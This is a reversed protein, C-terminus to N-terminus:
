YGILTKANSINDVYGNGKGAAQIWAPGVSAPSLRGTALDAVAAASPPLVGQAISTPASNVEQGSAAQMNMGLNAANGATGIGANAVLFTGFLVQGSSIAKVGVGFAAVGGFTGLVAISANSVRIANNYAKVSKLADEGEGTAINRDANLLNRYSRQARTDGNAALQRLKQYPGCGTPDSQNIPDNNVYNFMALDGGAFNIPDRQLWRGLQPSYDRAGFRILDTDPDYLGGAFGFPQFGPSTDSLVRGFEDYDLAQAVSGNAVNVVLRVSGREDSLIRYTNAGEIMFSPTTGDAGYVFRATLVANSDVEAVPVIGDWLWGRQLVGRVTKGVRRGVPDIVYHVESAAPTTVSLLVGRVDYSYTTTQGGNSASILNGNPSWGFTLGNLRTIRDQADYTATESNRSLRNGNVDYTYVAALSGNRSVQQLRGALDYVYGFVTTVGAITEVKNTIRGILDYSLRISWVPTGNASVVYNTLLGRDDFMRQDSVNGVTAGTIFGTAPDRPISLGGAQILLRDADYTYAVTSGNVSESAPLLDSNFKVSVQGTISGSWAVSTLLPGSGVYGLQLTDGTTSSINTLMLSGDGWNQGYQFALTPGTGLVMQEVRGALGHQLTVIQGDPLNVQTLNREFDYQYSVSEDAGVLPPTYKTLLNVPNYEFTHAPRGPPTVSTLNAESDQTFAVRAGDALVQRNLRGAADYGFANTHGLPDIVSALQGLADYALTARAMGASSANTLAKVRGLDDFAIDLVPQGPATAHIMRGFVDSVLSATRGQPSTITFTRNTPNYVQSYSNGNITTVNTLGTLSFPDLRNTLGVTRQIDAQYVLGNPFRLANRVAQKVEGGFRPDAGLGTYLTSGDSFSRATDGSLYSTAIQTPPGGLMYAVHTDGNPQLSMQRSRVEGLSNTCSVGILYSYDSQVGRDSAGDAWGGGIPDTVQTAKGLDDYAIHYTEGRPGTISLLLGGPSNALRTTENAPNTVSRLFGNADVGLATRQGYPGVIAMPQGSADREIRTVQGALDTMTVVLSNADYAFAWLTAGTLSDLTFLHRGAPDFVYVEAGDESPINRSSTPIATGRLSSRGPIIMIQPSLVNDPRVVFLTGDPTMAMAEAPYLYTNLPDGNDIPLDASPSLSANYRGAVRELIGNPNVRWIIMWNDTFYVSGDPGVQLASAPWYRTTVETALKGEDVQILATRNTDSPAPDYYGAWSIPCGNLFPLIVGGPSIKFIGGSWEYGDFTQNPAVYVTGDNGVALGQMPGANYYHAGYAATGFLKYFTPSANTTAVGGAGLVTYLRGDPAIKRVLNYNTGNVAGWMGSFYVSGEPGVALVTYGQDTVLSEQALTGDPQLIAPSTANLGLVVHWIRDPTLRAIVRNDTVYLSGDPGAAMSQLGAGSMSVHDATQGDVDKWTNWQLSVAGPALYSVSVLEYGGGPNRRFIYGESNYNGYFYTTGDPAAAALPRIGTIKSLFDDQLSQEPVTRIRGDGCYLIGGSPDLRHLQSPSWGGFGLKRHDPYTLLRQFIAGIGFGALSGGAFTTVNGDNGFLAPFQTLLEPGCCGGIYNWDKFVYDINIKALHTGGVLRGYADKGDWSVTVTQTTGPVTQATQEGEIDLDVQISSPPDYYHPPIACVAGAPANGCYPPPEQWAVPVTLQDDVRYDPVRANNYHLAFPVGVLPIEETFTQAAFNLTGYNDPSNDHPDGKPKDGPRNPKKPDPWFGGFNFDWITFHPVPSRWLTKGAPYLTALSQLEEATFGIAALTDQSEPLGKGHLDILAAGNTSGLVRMVIGNSSPVWLGQNRDYYGIPVLTGVPVELFNDVYVPMPQSFQVSKAGANVAEDSSFDACYTYASKPPLAAPMATPGNTGVTFETVRITINEMPRSSGDAMVMTASTGAPIFVTASRTGAADTQPSSTVVQPPANSGFQVPTAALDRPVLIVDPVKGYAQAPAQMQRQAPCFGIAQFDVTYAAANVALDFRGNTRSYTYGYEPHGLIAVRAGPLPRNYRQMVRGRLVSAQVSKITGPAMGVQVANSGTYLFATLSALDNFGNPLPATAVTAPDPPTSSDAWGRNVLRYFAAGNTAERRVSYRTGLVEPAAPVDLWSDTPDFGLVEQLININTTASWFLQVENTGASQVGLTSATQAGTPQATLLMATFVAVTGLSAFYRLIM